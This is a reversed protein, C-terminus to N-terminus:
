GALSASDDLSPPEHLLPPPPYFGDITHEGNAHKVTRPHFEEDPPIQECLFDHYELFSPLGPVGKLGMDYTRFCRVHMMVHDYRLLGLAWIQTAATSREARAVIRAPEALTAEYAAKGDLILEHLLMHYHFSTMAPLAPEGDGFRHLATAGRLLWAFRELVRHLRYLGEVGFREEIVRAREHIRSWDGREEALAPVLEGWFHAVDESTLESGELVARDATLGREYAATVQQLPRARRKYDVLDPHFLEPEPVIVREPWSAVGIAPVLTGVRRIHWWHGTARLESPRTPTMALLGVRVLKPPADPFPNHGLQRLVKPDHALIRQVLLDIMTARGAIGYPTAIPLLSGVYSGNHLGMPVYIIWQDLRAHYPAIFPPRSSPMSPIFRYGYQKWHVGDDSGEFVPTLRLPPQANPPFVGYGNVLRFPAIARLPAFWRFIRSFKRMQERDVPFFDPTWNVWSRTFWSTGFVLYFLSVLFLAGMLVHIALDPWATLRSSWPERALDLISSQTDLLCVCLLIYGVNFFGWNGTFHIGLMLAVLLACAVLRVPGAFLGLVPAVTEAVFMFGLAGRLFWTPAHHGYWGLVTPMPMWVFFGRLYLFDDKGTGVFKLKAFGLMLRLVLWRMMFAVTPLPLASAELSPLAHTAPLFIALFGAEQLMTDWPFVLGRPELSLWLMWALALAYTAYAGGYMAAVGCLTGIVAMARQTLDSDDIWLLTPQEFFKRAGPFDRRIRERLLRMPALRHAGPMIEHQVLLPGFALVYIVGLCRPVLGWVLEPTLFGLSM